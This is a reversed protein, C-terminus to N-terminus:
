EVGADGEVEGPGIVKMPGLTVKTVGPAVARVARLLEEESPTSLPVPPPYRFWRSRLHLQTPRGQDFFLVVSWSRGFDLAARAHFQMGLRLAQRICHHCNAPRERLGTLGWFKGRPKCLPDGVSRVLRGAHLPEDLVIHEGGANSGRDSPNYAGEVHWQLEHPTGLM